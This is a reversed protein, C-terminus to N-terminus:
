RELLANGDAEDRAFVEFWRGLDVQPDKGACARLQRQRIAALRDELGAFLSQVRRDGIAALVESAAIRGGEVLSAPREALKVAIRKPDRETGAELVAAPLVARRPGQELPLPASALSALISAALMVEGRRDPIPAGQMERG